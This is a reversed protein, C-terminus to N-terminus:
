CTMCSTWAYCSRWRITSALMEQRAYVAKWCERSFSGLVRRGPSRAYGHCIDFAIANSKYHLNTMLGLEGGHLGM